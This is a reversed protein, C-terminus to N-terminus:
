LDEEAGEIKPTFTGKPFPRIGEEVMDAILNTNKVVVEYAKEEGLYSFEELMEETTRFYLACDKDFDKFRMGALLIKRAIEDEANLFHADCTAVVPKKYKEGLEVIKRNLERLGEDDAVSGEAILFRNNCIPQIELYDYFSVIDALDDDSKNELIARFLEGAECASGIILGERHKELESKPIRPVRRYYNLYSYSILKYLNKLGEKNKVLIIQHYPKTSLPDANESMDRDLDSFTKIEFKDMKEVMCFFIRALIEADDDARHHNFEGLDFYKAVVDLKHTKLDPNLFRSLALTDLYANDFKYGCARAASRIFSVDFNANHAILLRNGIFELFEKLVVEIPDADRVMSNDIGTLEVINQPISVGPNVFRDYRELIEGNKIKVAGIEIIQNNLASLGTTEIDFVIFEDSFSGSYEGVVASVKDNVFYAEMGYIVKMGLKEAALMAQQYAQVNGHDTIAVAPHGWANAQKVAVDPPILADMTSMQTHLHLEVRKQEANDQRKIEKIKAVSSFNFTLDEDVIGGKRTDHKAYGYFAYSDGNKIIDALERSEDASKFVRVEVSAGGDYVYFVTSVKDGRRSPEQSFGFVEGVICLNRAQGELTAIAAPTIEFPNGIVFEPESLDYTKGGIKCLEGEKQVLDGGEFLTEARPARVENVISESGGAARRAINAEYESASKKLNRDIAEERERIKKQFGSALREDHTITVSYKEGFESLIINEIVAPTKADELLSVGGALFPITIKIENGVFEYDCGSFFGRAVVGVREAELLIQPFYRKDFLEPSYKPLIKMFNLQYAGKIEEEIYYLLDKDVIRPFEVRAEILRKEKDARILVEGCASLVASIESSKPIYKNFIELFTKGAM